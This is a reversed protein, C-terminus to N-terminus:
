GALGIMAWVSHAPNEDSICPTLKEIMSQLVEEDVPGEQVMFAVVQLAARKANSRPELVHRLYEQFMQTVRLRKTVSEEGDSHNRTSVRRQQDLMHSFRAITSVTGWLGEFRVRETEMSFSCTYLPHTDKAITGLHRFCLHDEELYQHATTDQRKRYEGYVVEVFAELDFRVTDNDSDAILSSIHAETYILTIIIEDRLAVESWMSKMLPLLEQVTHKTLELSQFTIRTLISNIAALAAAAGSSRGSRRRL